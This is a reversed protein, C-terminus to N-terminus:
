QLQLHPSITRSLNLYRASNALPIAVDASFEDASYAAYLGPRDLASQLGVPSMQMRERMHRAVECGNSSKANWTLVIYRFV